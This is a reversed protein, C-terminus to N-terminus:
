YKFNRVEKLSGITKGTDMRREEMRTSKEGRDSLSGKIGSDMTNGAMPGARSALEMLSGTSGSVKMSRRILIIVDEKCSNEMMGFDMMFPAMLFFRSVKDTLRAMLGIVLINPEMPFFRLGSVMLSDTLGAALTSPVTQISACGKGSPGARRGTETLSQGTPCHKSEKEMSNEMPGTGRTGSETRGSTCVGATRNIRTTIVRTSQGMWTSASAMGMVSEERSTARMSTGMLGLLKAMAM